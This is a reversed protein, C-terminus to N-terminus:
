ALARKLAAIADAFARRSVAANPQSLTSGHYTGPYVHLETRVGAQMLRRAYEIAEDRLLDLEAVEMYCPPLSSLDGARAPAAYPSVKGLFGPGAYMEWAWLSKARNWVKPDNFEHTSPMENRNDFAPILLMQFCPMPGGKDRAMLATAAALCGGASLGGIALKRPQFGLHRAPEAAWCLAAYCDDVAAPFPHEPALRYGVSVITCGVARVWPIAVIDEMEHHGALFGGGHYWVLVTDSPQNAPRYIRVPIPPTRAGAPIQSDQIDVPAGAPIVQKLLEGLRALLERSVQVSLPGSPVPAASYLPALEPDLRPTIDYCTTTM